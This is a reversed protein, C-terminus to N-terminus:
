FLYDATERIKFKDFYDNTMPIWEELFRRLMFSGHRELIRAEQESLPASLFVKLDYLDALEPHMSYVGEVVNLRKPQVEVPEGMQMVSYNYPRYIFPKGERLKGLVEGRFRERDLVRTHPLYFDSTSFVNGEFLTCLLRAADAKGAGCNGDIAVTVTDQKKLLQEVAAYLELYRGYEKRIVRYAPEYIKVYEPSHSIIPYGDDRFKKLFEKAEEPTFRFLEPKECCLEWFVRLREEFRFWAGDPVELNSVYFIRHILEPSLIKSSSLHLRCFFGCFPDFYPRRRKMKDTMGNIIGKLAELSAEESFISYHSGFESQHLRKIYDQVKARPHIEACYELFKKEDWVDQGTTNMM